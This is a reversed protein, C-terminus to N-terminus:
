WMLVFCIAQLYHTRRMSQGSQNIKKDTSKSNLWSPRVWHITIFHLWNVFNFQMIWSGTNKSHFLSIRNYTVYEMKIDSPRSLQYNWWFPYFSTHFQFHTILSCWIRVLNALITNDNSFKVHDKAHRLLRAFAATIKISGSKFDYLTTMASYHQREYQATRSPHCCM